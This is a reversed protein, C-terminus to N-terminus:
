GYNQWLEDGKTVGQPADDVPLTGDQRLAQGHLSFNENMQREYAELAQRNLSCFVQRGARRTHVIGVRRLVRLHWSILPQSYHLEAGLHTVTVEEHGALYYAIRLRKRDALSRFFANLDQM